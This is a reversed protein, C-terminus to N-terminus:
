GCKSVCVCRGASYQCRLFKYIPWFFPRAALGSSWLETGPIQMTSPSFQNGCATRKYGCHNQPVHRMYVCIFFYLTIILLMCIHTHAGCIQEQSGFDRDNGKLMCEGIFMCIFYTFVHMYESVCVSVLFNQTGRAQPSLETTLLM